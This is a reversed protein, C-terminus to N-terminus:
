HKALCSTFYTKAFMAAPKRRIHWICWFRVLTAVLGICGILLLLMVIDPLYAFLTDYDLARGSVRLILTPLLLLSLLPWLPLL